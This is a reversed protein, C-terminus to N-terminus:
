RIAVGVHNAARGDVTLEIEVDGRGALSRPVKVNVQDLGPYAGQPGAYTVEAPVGGIRCRVGSLSGRFRIGTGFLLLYVQDTEPGLSIPQAVFRAQAADFRAVPEQTQAGSTSVRLAVAAAVGRGSADASFLSPAVPEIALPGVSVAGDRGTVSVYGPGPAPGAPVVFTMQTPSVFYLAAARETGASDTVKVSTGALVAPLRVGSAAETAAVLDSGFATVISEPAVRPSYSAASVGRVRPPSAATLFFAALAENEIVVESAPAVVYSGGEARVTAPIVRHGGVSFLHVEGSVPGTWGAAKVILQRFSASGQTSQGMVFIVRRAHDESAYTYSELTGAGEIGALRVLSTTAAPMFGDLVQMAYDGTTDPSPGRTGAAYYYFRAQSSSLGRHLYADMSKAFVRLASAAGRGGEAARIGIEETTWIGTIARGEAVWRDWISDFVTQSGGIYHITILDILDSIKMGALSPAFDGRVVYDLLAPLWSSNAATGAANALSGMAIPLRDEPAAARNAKQLSEIAPAMFYEVFNGIYGRDNPAERDEYPSYPSPYPLNASKAWARMTRSFAESIENGLQWSAKHPKGRHAAILEAAKTLVEAKIAAGGDARVGNMFAALREEDRGSGLGTNAGFM